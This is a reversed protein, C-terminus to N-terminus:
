GLRGGRGDGGGQRPDQVAVIRLRRAHRNTGRDPDLVLSAALHALAHMSGGILRYLRSHTDTFFVIGTVVMMLWLGCVPDRAAAQM